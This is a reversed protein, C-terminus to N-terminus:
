KGFGKEIMEASIRKKILVCMKKGAAAWAAARAADKAAANAAGAARAAARNQATPNDAWKEAAEIARLPRLEDKPVYKLATRACDAACRVITPQDIKVAGALWLLWQPKDCRQWLESLPLAQQECWATAEPCADLKRLKSILDANTM